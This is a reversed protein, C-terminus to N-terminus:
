PWTQGFAAAVIVITLFILASWGAVFGFAVPLWLFLIQGWMDADFIWERLPIPPGHGYTPVSVM